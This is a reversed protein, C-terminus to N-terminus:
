PFFRKILIKAKKNNNSTAQPEGARQLPLLYPDEVLRGAKKKAWKAITWLGKNYPLSPNTTHENIFWRWNNRAEKRLTNKLQNRTDKYQRKDKSDHSGFYM